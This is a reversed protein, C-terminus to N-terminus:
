PKPILAFTYGTCFVSAYSGVACTGCSACSTDTVSAGNCTSGTKYSNVDCAQGDKCATCSCVDGTSDIFSGAACAPCAVCDTDFSTGDCTSSHVYGLSCESCELCTYPNKVDGNGDCGNVDSIYSGDPCYDCVTCKHVSSFEQGTCGSEYYEGYACPVCDTCTQTDGLGFTGVGGEGISATKGDCKNAIYQGVVCATNCELCIPSAQTSSDGTGTCEALVYDRIYYASPCWACDLCNPQAVYGSGSCTTARYKGWPCYLCPECVIDASSTCDSVIYYDKDCSSCSQFTADAKASCFATHYMGSPLPSCPQCFFGNDFEGAPCYCSDPGIRNSGASTMASTMVDTSFGINVEGRCPHCLQLKQLKHRGMFVMEGTPFFDWDYMAENIDSAIPGMVDSDEYTNDKDLADRWARSAYELSFKWPIGNWDNVLDIPSTRIRYHDDKDSRTTRYNTQWSPAWYTFYDGYGGLFPQKTAAVIYFRFNYDGAIYQVLYMAEGVTRICDKCYSVDFSDGLIDERKTFIRHQSNYSGTGYEINWFVMLQDFQPWEDPTYKARYICVIDNNGLNGCKPYGGIVGRSYLQDSGSLGATTIKINQDDSAQMNTESIWEGTSVSYRDMIFYARTLGVLFESNESWVVEEYSLGYPGATKADVLLKVNDTGPIAGLFQFVSIRNVAAGGGRPSAGHLLAFYKGNPSIILRRAFDGPFDTKFGDIESEILVKPDNYWNVPCTGGIVTNLVQTCVERNESTICVNNIGTDDDCATCYSEVCLDVTNSGTGRTNTDLPCATCSAAEDVDSYFGISCPLCVNTPGSFYGAICISCPFGEYGEACRCTNTNGVVVENNGCATCTRGYVSYGQWLQQEELTTDATNPNYPCRETTTQGAFSITKQTTIRNCKMNIRITPDGVTGAPCMTNCTGIPDWEYGLECYECLPRGTLGNTHSGGNCAYCEDDTSGSSSFTDVLCDKCTDTARDRFTGPFCYVCVNAVVIMGQPCAVCENNKVYRGHGCLACGSGTMIQDSNCYLCDSIKTTGTGVTYTLPPCTVCAAWRKNSYTGSACLIKQNEIGYNIGVVEGHGGQCAYGAPCEFCIPVPNHAGWTGGDPTYYGPKCTCYTSRAKSGSYNDCLSCGTAGATSWENIACSTCRNIDGALCRANYTGAPCPTVVGYALPDFSRSVTYYYGPLVATCLSQVVNVTSYISSYCEAIPLATYGPKCNPYSGSYCIEFPVYNLPQKAGPVDYSSEWFNIGMDVLQASCASPTTPYSRAFYGLEYCGTNQICGDGGPFVDVPLYLAVYGWIDYSEVYACCQILSVVVLLNTWMRKSHHTTRMHIKAVKM